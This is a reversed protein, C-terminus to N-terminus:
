LPHEVLGRRRRLLGVAIARNLLNRAIGNLFAAQYQNGWHLERIRDDLRM